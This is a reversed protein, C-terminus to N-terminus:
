VQVAFIFGLEKSNILSGFIFETGVRGYGLLAVFGGALTDFIDRGLPVKLVFTAFGIQLLVGTAVLRRDIARRNNSCLLAISLLMALGFLGFGIQALTDLM